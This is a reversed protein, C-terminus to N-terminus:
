EALWQQLVRTRQQITLRIRPRKLQSAASAAAAKRYQGCALSFSNINLQLRYIGV